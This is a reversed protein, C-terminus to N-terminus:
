NIEPTREWRYSAPAQRSQALSKGGRLYSREQVRAITALVNPPAVIRNQQQQRPQRQTCTLDRGEVKVIDIPTVALDEYVALPTAGLTQWQWLLNTCSDRAIQTPTPGFGGGTAEERLASM